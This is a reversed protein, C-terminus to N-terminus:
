RGQVRLGLGPGLVHAGTHTSLENLMQAPPRDAEAALDHVLLMDTRELSAVDLSEPHRNRAAASTAVYALQLTCREM